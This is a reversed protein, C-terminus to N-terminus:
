ESSKWYYNTDFADIKTPIVKLDTFLNAQEQYAKLFSDDIPLTGESSANDKVTALMPEYDANWIKSLLKAADEPNEKVWEDAGRIAKLITETEKKHSPLWSGAAFYYSAGQQTSKAGWITSNDALITTPTAAQAQAVLPNWTAWADFQGGRKYAALADSPAIYVPQIDSYKLGVQKLASAIVYEQLTGKTVAVKKGKLQKISTIGSDSRTFIASGHQIGGVAAVKVIPKKAAQAFITGTAGGGGFEINNTSASAAEVMDSTSTFKHWTLTYGQKKLEQALKGQEKVITLSSMGTQYGIAITKDNATAQQSANANGCAALAGFGLVIGCAAAVVKRIRSRTRSHIHNDIRIM